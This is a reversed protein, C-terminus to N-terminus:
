LQDGLGLNSEINDAIQAILNIANLIENADINTTFALHKLAYFEDGLKGLGFPGEAQALAQMPSIMSAKAFPAHLVMADLEEGPLDLFAVSVLQTRGSGLVINITFVESSGQVNPFNQTIFSRIENWSAM